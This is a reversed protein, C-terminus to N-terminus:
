HRTRKGALTLGAPPASTRNAIFRSGRKHAPPYPFTAARAVQNKANLRGIKGTVLMLGAAKVSFYGRFVGFLRFPFLCSKEKLQERIERPERNSDKSAYAQGVGAM